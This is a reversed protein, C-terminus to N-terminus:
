STFSCMRPWSSTSVVGTRTRSLSAVVFEATEGPCAARAQEVAVPSVEVGTYRFGHEVLAPTLRGIGCGLDLAMKDRADPYMHELFTKLYRRHKAEGARNKEESVGLNGISRIEGRLREHRELWYSEEDFPKEAVPEPKPDTTPRKLLRSLRFPLAM